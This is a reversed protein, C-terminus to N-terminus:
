PSGGSGRRGAMTGHSARSTTRRQEWKEVLMQWDTMEVSSITIDPKVAVAPGWDISVALRKATFFPRDGDHLGDIILDEVLVKGTLLRIKLSGIRMPREIYKSGETEARGKVAPGLDVTVSSVIAAALLAVILSLCVGLYRLLAHRRLRKLLKM